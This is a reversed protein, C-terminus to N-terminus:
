NGMLREIWSKVRKPLETVITGLVSACPASEAPASGQVFPLEIADACGGDARLGSAPDILVLEINDPKPPALPEPELPAMLEGWIPLAAVGGSLRAARNDDYGVWVVALRDGTFGAFWADRQDDTTGTKGAVGTGAPLWTALSRATGERIVGQMANTILFMQEAPFAQDVALPYRKLPQGDQTTVERISRLPTRFGGTAMTQYMQAVDFPSMEVAGLLASALPRVDRDIGLRKVNALVREIGLETGLRAASVNYSHALATRLPVNGHFIKDYNEPKWDKAGRSKWVFPGDDLPTILTYKAPDALATLYIVPKLLSGIPRAADLARNFGRYKVERGGVLAQVEGAQSDTVVAAAELGVAGFRKERDYQALKREIAREAARQARPDLTSFIRLGETRLDTEDYERRLQRHVLELFAPHPSTGAVVKTRVGLTTARATTYDPMTIVGLDKMDRLIVNRRDLARQAHRHPDYIAPGKVMAVLLASDALTLQEVQKGFYHLAALGVGHIARDRDQGLFIENLYTELIEDKSYRVELLVAMIIETIKRKVTREPSLFFNKVLQQTLTSGGQLGGGPLLNWGARAIGRLDFGHHTHFSRDETAVLAQVFHKPVDALRVLVRDQNNAPYIGGIPLPELRALPLENGDLDRLDKVAGDEFSVRIRKALQAGDWFVFPRLAIDFGDATRVYWGFEGERAGERYNAEQLEQVIENPKVRQGTHLELPRAFIRAPLAFRRGEFETRVRFDLYITFGVTVLVIGLLAFRAYRWIAKLTAKLNPLSKM